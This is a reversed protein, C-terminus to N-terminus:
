ILILPRGGVANMLFHEVPWKKFLYTDVWGMSSLGYRTGPVEGNTWDM